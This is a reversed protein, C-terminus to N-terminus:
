KLVMKIADAMPYILHHLGYATLYITFIVAIAIIIDRM